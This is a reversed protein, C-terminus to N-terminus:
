HVRAKQIKIQKRMEAEREMTCAPCNCVEEAEFAENMKEFGAIVDRFLKEENVMTITVPWVQVAFGHGKVNAGFRVDTWDVRALVKMVM